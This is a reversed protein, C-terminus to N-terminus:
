NKYNKVRIIGTLLLQMLGKKQQKFHELEKELLEIELAAVKLIEGIKKQEAIDRPIHLKLKKMMTESIEKQGTGGVMHGVKRYFDGNSIYYLLFWFDGEIVELSSIANSAVFGKMGNPVVGIGGNHYNQRGILIEGPHRLFYPRGNKTDNPTKETSEIGKLHLKVTLLKYENPKEVKDKRMFGLVKNFSIEKWERDHGPLRVKGTLLRQMLYKQQNKKEEILKEKLEIAKDWTSLIDVIACQEPMPPYAIKMKSLSDKTLKYRGAGQRTLLDFINRHQYFYYFWKTSCKDTGQLLHAHNNVNFKGDVLLTMEKEKYKLFHDGDEGILVHEGEVSYDNIYDQIKTPGYYPYEGQIEKRVKESIPVRLNNKIEMVDSIKKCNWDEHYIINKDEVFNNPKIGNIIDDILLEISTDM